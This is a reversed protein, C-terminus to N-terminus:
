RIVVMDIPAMGLDVESSEKFTALDFRHVRAAGKKKDGFFLVSTKADIAMGGAAYSELQAIDQAKGTETSVAIIKDATPTNVDLFLKGAHFLTGGVDGGLEEETAVTDAVEFKSLDVALIGGDNMGYSGLCPIYLMGKASDYSMIGPNRYPLEIAKIVKKSVPDIKLLHPILPVWYKPKTDMNQTSAYLAGGAFQLDFTEPLNDTSDGYASVDIEGAAKGDGQHFIGIKDTGLFAVYLLSDKLAIDQPNSGAEFPFQLVTKLNHRDIIQANDRGLRNLIFIDDGGEYRVVADSHVPDINAQVFESDIGIVSYGGTKYDSTLTFLIAKEVPVPAPDEKDGTMCANLGLLAAGALLATRNPSLDRNM